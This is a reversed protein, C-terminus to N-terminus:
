CCMYHIQMHSAYMGSKYSLPFTYELPTFTKKGFANKAIKCTM